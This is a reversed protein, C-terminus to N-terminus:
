ACTSQEPKTLKSCFLPKRTTRQLSIYISANYKHYIYYGITTGKILLICISSVIQNSYHM